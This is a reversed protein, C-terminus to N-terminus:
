PDGNKGGAIMRVKPLHRGAHERDAAIEAALEKLKAYPGGVLYDPARELAEEIVGEVGPLNDAFIAKGEHDFVVAWPLWQVPWDCVWGRRVVPFKPALRELFWVVDNEQVMPKRPVQFGIVFLGKEEYREVLRNVYPFAGTSMPCSVCWHYCLVVRGELDHPSLRPGAVQTGFRVGSLDGVDLEAIEEDQAVATDIAGVTLGALFVTALITTKGIRM